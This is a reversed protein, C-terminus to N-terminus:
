QMGLLSKSSCIYDFQLRGVDEKITEWQQYIFGCDKVISVCRKQHPGVKGYGGMSAKEGNRVLCWAEKAVAQEEVQFFVGGVGDHGM